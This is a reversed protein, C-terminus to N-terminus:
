CFRLETRVQALKIAKYGAFLVKADGLLRATYQSEQGTQRCIPVGPAQARAHSCGAVTFAIIGALTVSFAPQM